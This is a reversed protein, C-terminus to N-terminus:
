KLLSASDEMSITLLTTSLRYPLETPVVVGLLKEKLLPMLDWSIQMTLSEAGLPRTLVMFTVSKTDNIQEEGIKTSPVGWAYGGTASVYVQASSTYCAAFLGALLFIRKM